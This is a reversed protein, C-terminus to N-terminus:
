RTHPDLEFWVVKGAPPVPYHGWAQSLQEIIHLGRGMESDTDIPRLDPHRESSDHVEIRLRTDFQIRITLDGVTHQVANTIVEDLLLTADEILPHQNWATLIDAAFRRGAAASAADGRLRRQATLSAPQPTTDLTLALIAVDDSRPQPGVEATLIHNLLTQPDSTPASMAATRLDELGRDLSYRRDEVLGDTYLLLSSGAPILFTTDQYRADPDVGLPPGTRLRLADAHGATRLVPPPHGALVATATGEALHLELYCCTAVADPELRLLLHNTRQMVGTPSHGDAAYARLANRLQGMTAAAQTSHGAVDGIVVAATDPGLDIVDYWDGGVDVGVTWPLYRVAHRAGALPPLLSPLLARQLDAAISLQAQFLLARQIAQAALRSFAVLTAREDADFERPQPYGIVVVGLVQGATILPLFAWAQRSGGSIATAPDPQAAAFETPSHLYRAEGTVTVDAAPYPHSLPLERLNEIIEPEYGAHHRLVLRDHELLLVALGHGGAAPRMVQDMAAYVEAPTNAAVFAETVKQLAATVAQLRETRAAAARAEEAARQLQEQQGVQETIERYSVAVFGLDVRVIKIEWVQGTVASSFQQLWPRGGEAVQRYRDFLGYETSGPSVESVPRGILDEATRGTLKAGIENVYECTFDVIVGDGDRVARLLTFGDFAADLADYLRAGGESPPGMTLKALDVFRALFGDGYPGIRFEFHGAVSVRDYYVTRVMAVREQVVRRYLPLTGDTVTEPWLQRYTRGVLDHPSRALFRSGAANLYVLEFDVIDGHERIARALAWGHPDADLM